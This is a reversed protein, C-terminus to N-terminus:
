LIQSASSNIRAFSYDDALLLYCAGFITAVGGAVAGVVAGVIMCAVIACGTWFCSVLHDGNTIGFACNMVRRDRPPTPPMSPSAVFGIAAGTLTTMGILTPFALALIWHSCLSKMTQGEPTNVRVGLM